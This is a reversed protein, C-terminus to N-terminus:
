ALHELQKLRRVLVAHEAAQARTWKCEPFRRLFPGDDRGLTRAVELCSAGDALMAAATALEADTIPRTPEKAIGLRKRARQVTRPNIHLRIAIEPASQGARTLRGILADRETDRTTPATM